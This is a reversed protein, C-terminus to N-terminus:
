APEVRRVFFQERMTQRVEWTGTFGPSIVGTTEPLLQVESADSGRLVGQGSLVHFFEWKDYAITWCGPTSEWEGSTMSSESQLVWSRLAGALPPM